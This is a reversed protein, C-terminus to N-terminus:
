LWIVDDKFPSPAPEEPEGCAQTQQAIMSLVLAHDLRQGIERHLQVATVVVVLVIFGLVIRM